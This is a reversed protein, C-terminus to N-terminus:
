TRTVKIESWVPRLAAAVEAKADATAAAVV